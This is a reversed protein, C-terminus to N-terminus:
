FKEEFINRKESLKRCLLHRKCSKWRFTLSKFERRSKKFFELGQLVTTTEMSSPDWAISIGCHSEKITIMSDKRSVLPM